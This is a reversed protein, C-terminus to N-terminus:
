RDKARREAEEQLADRAKNEALLPVFGQIPADRLQEAADSVAARIEDESFEGKEKVSSQNLHDAAASLQGDEIVHERKEAM